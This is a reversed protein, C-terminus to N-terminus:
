MYAHRDCAGAYIDNKDYSTYHRSALLLRERGKESGRVRLLGQVSTLARKIRKIAEKNTSFLYPTPGATTRARTQARPLLATCPRTPLPCLAPLHPPSPSLRRSFSSVSAGAPRLAPAQGLCASQTIEARTYQNASRSRWPRPCLGPGGAAETRALARRAPARHDTTPRLALGKWVFM